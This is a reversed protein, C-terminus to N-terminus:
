SPVARTHSASGSFARRVPWVCSTRLTHKLGSPWRTKAQNRVRSLPADPGLRQVFRRLERLACEAALAAGRDSRFSRPSGHGDSVALLLVDNASSPNKLRVADQNGYGGEAHSAGQVSASLATWRLSTVM